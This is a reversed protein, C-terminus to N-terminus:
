KRRREGTARERSKSLSRVAQERLSGPIYIGAIARSTVESSALVADQASQTALAQFKSLSRSFENANGSATPRADLEPRPDPSIGQTNRRQSSSDDRHPTVGASAVSVSRSCSNSTLSLSDTTCPKQDIAVPKQKPPTQNPDWTGSTSQHPVSAPSTPCSDGPEAQRVRKQLTQDNSKNTPAFGSIRAELIDSLRIMSRGRSEHDDDGENTLKIVDGEQEALLLNIAEFPPNRRLPSLERGEEPFPNLSDHSLSEPMAPSQVELDPPRRDQVPESTAFEEYDSYNRKITLGSPETLRQTNAVVPSKPMSDENQRAFRGGTSKWLSAEDAEKCVAKHQDVPDQHSGHNALTETSAQLPKGSPPEVSDKLSIDFISEQPGMHMGHFAGVIEFERGADGTLRHMPKSILIPKKAPDPCTEAVITDEAFTSMGAKGPPCTSEIRSDQYQVAQSTLQTTCSVSVSKHAGISDHPVVQPRFLDATDDLQPWENSSPTSPKQTNFRTNLFPADNHFSIPQSSKFFVSDGAKSLPRKLDRNTERLSAMSTEKYKVRKRVRILVFGVSFGLLLSAVMTGVVIGALQMPALSVAVGQSGM